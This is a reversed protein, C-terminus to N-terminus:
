RSRGPKSSAHLGLTGPTSEPHSPTEDPSSLAEEELIRRLHARGRSLRSKVTGVAVGEVAAVEDYTKGEVDFLVVAGRFEVPVQRLARWIRARDQERAQLEDPAPAADPEGECRAHAEHARERRARSRAADLFVSRVITFLWTSFACQYRFQRLCRYAKLLADQALDDADAERPAHARAYRRVVGLHVRVLEEFARVDGEQARAVLAEVDVPTVPASSLASGRLRHGREDEVPGPVRRRGGADWACDPVDGAPALCRPLLCIVFSKLLLLARAAHAAASTRQAAPHPPDAEVLAPELEVEARASASADVLVEVPVSSQAGVAGCISAHLPCTAPSGHVSVVVSPPLTVPAQRSDSSPVITPQAGSGGAGGAARTEAQLPLAAPSAHLAASANPSSWAPRHTGALSLAVSTQPRTRVGGASATAAQALAAAPSGQVRGSGIPAPLAATRSPTQLRPGAPVPSSAQAGAWARRGCPAAAQAPRAAPSEQVRPRAPALTAPVQTVGAWPPSATQTTAHPATPPGKPRRPGSPSGPAPGRVSGRGPPGPMSGPWIQEPAGRSPMSGIGMPEM